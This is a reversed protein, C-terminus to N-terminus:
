KNRLEDKRYTIDDTKYIDLLVQYHKERETQLKIHLTLPDKVYSEYENIQAINKVKRYTSKLNRIMQNIIQYLQDLRSDIEQNIKIDDLLEDLEIM